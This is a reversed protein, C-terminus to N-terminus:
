PKTVDHLHHVWPRDWVWTWGTTDPEILEAM